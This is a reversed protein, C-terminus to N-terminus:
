SGPAPPLPRDRPTRDPRLDRELDNLATTAADREARAAQLETADVDWDVAERQLNHLAALADRARNRARGLQDRAERFVVQAADAAARLEPLTPM